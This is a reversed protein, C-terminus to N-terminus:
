KIVGNKYCKVLDLDYLFLNGFEHKTHNPTDVSSYDAETIVFLVNYDIARQFLIDGYEVDKVYALEYGQIVHIAEVLDTINSYTFPADLTHDTVSQSLPEFNRSEFISSLKFCNNSVAVMSEVDYGFFLAHHIRYNHAIFELLPKLQNKM